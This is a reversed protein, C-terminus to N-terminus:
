TTSLKINTPSTINVLFPIIYITLENINLIHERVIANKIPLTTNFLFAIFPITFTTASRNLNGKHHMQELLIKVLILILNLEYKVVM